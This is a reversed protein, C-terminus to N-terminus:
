CILGTIIFRITNKIIVDQEKRLKNEWTVVEAMVPITRFELFSFRAPAVMMAVWIGDPVTYLVTAKASPHNVSELM